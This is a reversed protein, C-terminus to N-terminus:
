HIIRSWEQTISSSWSNDQIVLLEDRDSRSSGSKDMVRSWGPYSKTMWSLDLIMWPLEQEDLIVWSHDLIVRPWGPDTQTMWSLWPTICSLYLDDPIFWSQDLIVRQWGPYSMLSGPYSRIMWSLNLWGPYGLLSGPYSKTMWSLDSTLLQIDTRSSPMQILTASCAPMLERVKFRTEQGVNLLIRSWEIVQWHLIESSLKLTRPETWFSILKLIRSLRWM